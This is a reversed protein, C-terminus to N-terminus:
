RCMNTEGMDWSGEQLCERVRCNSGSYDRSNQGFLGGDDRKIGSPTEMFVSSTRIQVFVTFLLVKGQYSLSGLTGKILPDQLPNLTFLVTGNEVFCVFEMGILSM